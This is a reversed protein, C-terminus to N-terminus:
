IVQAVTGSPDTVAVALLWADTGLAPGHNSVSSLELEISVLKGTFNFEHLLM